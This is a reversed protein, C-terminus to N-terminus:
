ERNDSRMLSISSKSNTVHTSSSETFRLERSRHAIIRASQELVGYEAMDGTPGDCALRDSSMGRPAVRADVHVRTARGCTRAM